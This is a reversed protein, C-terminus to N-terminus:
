GQAIAENKKISKSVFGMLNDLSAKFENWLKPKSNEQKAEHIVSIVLTCLWTNKRRKLKHINMHIQRNTCTCIHMHTYTVTHM